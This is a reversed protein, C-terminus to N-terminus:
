NATSDFQEIAASQFVLNARDAPLASGSLRHDTVDSDFQGHDDFWSPLGPVGRRSM